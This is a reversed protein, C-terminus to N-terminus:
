GAVVRKIVIEGQVHGDSVRVLAEANVVVTNFGPSKVLALPEAAHVQLAKILAFLVGGVQM